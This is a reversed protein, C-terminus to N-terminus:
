KNIILKIKIPIKKIFNKVYIPFVKWYLPKYEKITRAYKWWLNYHRCACGKWPKQHFGIYHLIRIDQEKLENSHISDVSRNYKFPEEFTLVKNKVGFVANVIDQEPFTLECKCNNIYNEIDKEYNNDNRILGINIPMVGVNIYKYDNPLHLRDLEKKKYKQDKYAIFYNDKIDINNLDELSGLIILDSDLWIVKDIEKPLYRHLYLKIMIEKSFEYFIKIDPIEDDKIQICKIKVDNTSDSELLMTGEKSIDFHVIFINILEPGKNAKLSAITTRTPMIFKENIAM